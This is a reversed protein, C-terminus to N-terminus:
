SENVTEKELIEDILYNLYWRAKKLDQVLLDKKGARLLYKLSQGIAHAHVPQHHSLVYTMLDFYEIGDPFKSYAEPPIMKYHAPNVNKEVEDPEEFFNGKAVNEIESNDVPLKYDKDERKETKVRPYLGACQGDRFDAVAYPHEPKVGFYDEYDLIDLDVSASFEAVTTFDDFHYKSDTLCEKIRSPMLFTLDKRQVLNKDVHM